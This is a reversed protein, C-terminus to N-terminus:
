PNGWRYLAPNGPYPASEQIIIRRELLHDRAAALKKRSLGVQGAFGNAIMFLSDPGNLRRLKMLLVAADNHDPSLSDVEVDSLWAGRTGFRNRGESQAHWASAAITAVEHEPLPPIMHEDNRTRAIALVHDLSECGRAERMCMRWLTDNRAGVAIKGSPSIDSAPATDNAPPQPHLDPDFRMRPLRALDDLTGRVLRYVGKPVRSGAAVVGGAGLVDVEIGPFPRVRRGEDNHRYLLHRGGSPTEVELPTRGFRQQMEEVLKEDTSDIDVVTTRSRPGACYGFADAEAFKRALEASARLGVRNYNTIAPKKTDTLPYVAIKHRGYVPQYTAFAGGTAGAVATSDAHPV